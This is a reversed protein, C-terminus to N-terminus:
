VQHRKLIKPIPEFNFGKGESLDDIRQRLHAIETTQVALTIIVSSLKEMEKAALVQAMEVGKIRYSLGYFVSFGAGVLAALQIITNINVTWDIM